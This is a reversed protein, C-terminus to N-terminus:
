EVGSPKASSWQQCARAHTMVVMADGRLKGLTTGGLLQTLEPVDTGLLVDVPLTGSVAAEISIPQGDVELEIKTLPYLVMDRHACRIAVSDGEVIKDQPVLDKHVMSQSCGIDLVVREVSRGEVIGSKYVDRKLLGGRLIAPRIQSSGCFLAASPCKLAAHGRQGCNYCKILTKGTKDEM